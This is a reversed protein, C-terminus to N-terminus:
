RENPLLASNHGRSRDFGELLSGDADSVSFIKYDDPVIDAVEDNTISIHEFFIIPRHASIIRRIGHIVAVEHGETDIKIINPADIVGSAVLEDGTRCEIEIQKGTRETREAELTGTTSRGEPIIFSANKSCDSLAYRCGEVFGFPQLAAESLLYMAPNPEFFIVKRSKGEKSLRFSFLGCNAGVDWVISSGTSKQKVAALLGEEEFRDGLLYNLWYTASVDRFDFTVSHTESVRLCYNHLEPCIPAARRLLLGAGKLHLKGHWLRYFNVLLTAIMNNAFKYNSKFMKTYCLRAYLSTPSFLSLPDIASSKQLIEM